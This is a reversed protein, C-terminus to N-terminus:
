TGANVEARLVQSCHFTVVRRASIEMREGTKPNRGMRARKGHATFKGFGSLKVKDGFALASKITDFLQDVLIAAAANGSGLQAATAEILDQKTLTKKDDTM